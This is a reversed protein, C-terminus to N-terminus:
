RRQAVMKTETEDLQDLLAGLELRGAEAYMGLVTRVVKRVVPDELADVVKTAAPCADLMGDLFDALLGYSVESRDKAGGHPQAISYGFTLLVTLDPFQGTIAKM